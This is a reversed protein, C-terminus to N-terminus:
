KENRVLVVDVRRNQARGEKTDNSAIPSSFGMGKTRIENPYGHEKLVSAVSEARALSLRKNYEEPGVNDTHGEILVLAQPNAALDRELEDMKNAEPRIVKSDFAFNAVSQLSYRTIVPERVVPEQVPPQAQQVVEPVIPEEQQPAAKHCIFCGAVLVSGLLVLVKKM